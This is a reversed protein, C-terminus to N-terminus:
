NGDQSLNVMLGFDKIQEDQVILFANKLTQVESMSKGAVWLRSKPDVQVLEKINQLILRM